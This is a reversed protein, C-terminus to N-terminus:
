SSWGATAGPVHRVVNALLETVALEVSDALECLKWLRLDLELPSWPPSQTSHAGSVWATATRSELTGSPATRWRAGAANAANTSESRRSPAEDCM